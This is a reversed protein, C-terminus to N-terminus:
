QQVLTNIDALTYAGGRAKLTAKVRTGLAEHFGDVSHQYAPLLANLVWFVVDDAQQRSVANPHQPDSSAMNFATIFAAMFAGPTEWRKDTGPQLHTMRLVQMSRETISVTNYATM